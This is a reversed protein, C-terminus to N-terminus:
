FRIFKSWAKYDTGHVIFPIESADKIVEFLSDEELGEITHGQVARIKYKKSGNAEVEVMEFRKKSNNDVVLKLDAFSYKKGKTALLEDVDVFGQPDMKVGVENAGHRLVFSLYKSFDTMKKDM